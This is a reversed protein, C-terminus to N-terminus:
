YRRNIARQSLKAQRGHLNGRSSKMSSVRGAPRHLCTHSSGVLRSVCKNGQRALAHWNIMLYAKGLKCAIATRAARCVWVLSYFASRLLLLLLIRVRRSSSSTTHICAPRLFLLVLRHGRHFIFSSAILCGDRKRTTHRPTYVDRKCICVYLALAYLKRHCQDKDRTRTHRPTAASQPRM